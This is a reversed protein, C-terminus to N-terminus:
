ALILAASWLFVIYEEFSIKYSQKENPDRFLKPESQFRTVGGSVLNTSQMGDSRNRHLNIYGTSLELSCHYVIRNRTLFPVYM